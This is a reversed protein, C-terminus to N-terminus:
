YGPDKVVDKRKVFSRINNVELKIDDAYITGLTMLNEPITLKEKQLTDLSNVFEQAFQEPSKEFSRNEM